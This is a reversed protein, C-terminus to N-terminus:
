ISCFSLRDQTFEFCIAPGTQSQYSIHKRSNRISLTKPDAGAEKLRKAVALILDKDHISDDSLRLFIRCVDTECDHAKLTETALEVVKRDIDGLKGDSEAAGLFFSPRIDEDEEGIMRLFVKYYAIPQGLLAVLPQYVIRFRDNELAQNVRDIWEGHQEDKQRARQVPNYRRVRNGGEAEAEIAAKASHDLLEDASVSGDGVAVVGISATCRFSHSGVEFITESFAERLAAALEQAVNEEATQVLASFSQDSSRALAGLKGIKAKIRASMEVIFPDMHSIGIQSSIHNFQDPRIHLLYSDVDKEKAATILQQKLAQRNLLGTLMDRTKLENLERALEPTVSTDRLIVQMCAEGDYSATSFEMQTDAINGDTRRIKQDIFGPPAEGRSVNKLFKKSSIRKM